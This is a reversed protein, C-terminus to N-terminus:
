HIVQRKLRIIDSLQRQIEEKKRGRALRYEIHQIRKCSAQRHGPDAYNLLAPAQRYAQTLAHPIHIM